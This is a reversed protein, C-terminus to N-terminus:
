PWGAALVKQDEIRNRGFFTGVQIKGRVVVIKLGIRPSYVLM